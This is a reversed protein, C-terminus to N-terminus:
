DDDLAALARDRDRHRVIIKAIAERGPAREIMVPRVAAEFYLVTPGGLEGTSSSRSRTLPGGAARWLDLVSWYFSAAPTRWGDDDRLDEARASALAEVQDLTSSIADFRGTLPEDDVISTVALRLELVMRAVHEYEDARVGRPKFMENLYTEAAAELADLDFTAAHELEGVLSLLARRQVENYRFRFPDSNM